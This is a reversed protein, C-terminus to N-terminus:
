LKQLLDMVDQGVTLSSPDITSGKHDGLSSFIDQIDRNNRQISKKHDESHM